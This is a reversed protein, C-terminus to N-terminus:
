QQDREESGRAERVRFGCRVGQVEALKGGGRLEGGRGLENM